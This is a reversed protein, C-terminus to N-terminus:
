LIRPTRLVTMTLITMIYYLEGARTGQKLEPHDVSDGELCIKVLSDELCIKLNMMPLEHVNPEPLEEPPEEVEEAEEDEGAEEEEEAVAEEEEGVEEGEAGDVGDAGDAEGEQEEARGIEKGM